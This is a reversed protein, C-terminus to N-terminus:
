ARRPRHARLTRRGLGLAQVLLSEVPPPLRQALPVRGRARRELVECARRGGASSHAAGTGRAGLSRQTACPQQVLLPPQGLRLRQVLLGQRRAALLQAVLVLLRDGADVVQRRQQLVLALEVLARRQVLLRERVAARLVAVAV